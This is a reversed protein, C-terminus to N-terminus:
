RSFQAALGRVSTWLETSLHFWAQSWPKLGSKRSVAPYLFSFLAPLICSSRSSCYSFHACRQRSVSSSAVLAQVSIIFTGMMTLLRSFHTTGLDVLCCAPVILFLVFAKEISSLPEVCVCVCVSASVGRSTTAHQGSLVFGFRGYRAITWRLDVDREFSPRRFDAGTEAHAVHLAIGSDDVTPWSGLECLMGFSKTHLMIM